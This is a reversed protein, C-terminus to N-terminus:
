SNNPIDVSSFIIQNTLATRLYFGRPLTQIVQGEADMTKTLVRSHAAKPRIHLYQGISGNIQEIKGMLVWEIIHEWDSRLVQYQEDSPSWLIAQGIRRQLFPINKDGEIPIWLVKKLKKFCTSEEWRFQKHQILPLTTVYTSEMVQRKQNVPITKLEIELSPFDPVPLCGAQAGLFLEITQGLWGKAITLHNPPSLNLSQALQLVTLGSLELAKQYLKIQNM